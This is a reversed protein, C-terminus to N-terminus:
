VLHSMGYRELDDLSVDYADSGAFCHATVERLRAFENRKSPACNELTADILELARELARNRNELDNKVQWNKARVFESTIHGLQDQVSLRQWRDKDM